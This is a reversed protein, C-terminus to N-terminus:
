MGFLHITRNSIRLSGDQDIFAFGSIDAASVTPSFCIFYCALFSTFSM